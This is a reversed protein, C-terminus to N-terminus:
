RIACICCFPRAGGRMPLNFGVSSITLGAACTPYAPIRQPTVYPFIRALLLEPACRCIPRPEMSRGTPGGPVRNMRARDASMWSRSEEDRPPYSKVNGKSLRSTRFCRAAVNPFRGSHSYQLSHRRHSRSSM